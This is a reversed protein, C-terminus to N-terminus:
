EIKGANKKLEKLKKIKNSNSQWASAINGTQTNVAVTAHEGIFQQSKDARINGIKLPNTLAEKISEVDLRREIARQGFHRSVTTVAINNATKIGTINNFATIKKGIQVVRQGESRGFGVV